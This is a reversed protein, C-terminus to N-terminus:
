FAIGNDTPYHPITEDAPHELMRILAKTAPPVPHAPNQVICIQRRPIEMNLNLQILGYNLLYPRAFKYPVFGIGLNHLVTPSILDNSNVEVNPKLELGQERFINDWFNRTTTGKEMCVIPYNLLEQLSLVRDQLHTFRNGAVVIDQFDAVPTVQFEDSAEIPTIVLSFDITGADLASVSVPTSYAHIQINVNPFQHQFRELYPLLFYRMTLESAGINVKGSQCNVYEQLLNKAQDMQQCARSVQHFLLQGEATLSVGKQSRLFLRCGLEQELNQIYKTVTPQTLCLRHAALTISKCRATEYFIKYYDFSIDM